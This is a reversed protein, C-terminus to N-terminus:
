KGFHLNLSLASYKSLDVDVKLTKTGLKIETETEVPFTGDKVLANVISQIADADYGANTLAEFRSYGNGWKGLIVEIAIQQNTKAPM